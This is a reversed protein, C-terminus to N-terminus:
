RYGPRWPESEIGAIDGRALRSWLEIIKADPVAHMHREGGRELHEFVVYDGPSVSMCWESEHSVAVSGHEIDEQRNDLERLLAPLSSLPPDSDM